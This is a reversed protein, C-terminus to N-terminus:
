DKGLPAIFFPRTYLYGPSGFHPVKANLLQIFTMRDDVSLHQFYFKDGGSAGVYIKYSKDTPGLEIGNAVARMFAIPHLSGCHACYLKGFRDQWTDAPALRFTSPIEIRRPCIFRGATDQIRTASEACCDLCIRMDTLPDPFRARNPRECNECTGTDARPATM